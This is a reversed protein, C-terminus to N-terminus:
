VTVLVLFKPLKGLDFFIKIVAVGTCPCETELFMQKGFTSQHDTVRMSFIQVISSRLCPHVVTGDGTDSV